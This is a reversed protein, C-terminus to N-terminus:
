AGAGQMLKAFAMAPVDLWGLVCPGGVLVIRLVPSGPPAVAYIADHNSPIGEVDRRKLEDMLTKAQEPSLKVIRAGAKKGIAGDNWEMGDECLAPAQAVAAPKEGCGALFMAFCLVLIPGLLIALARQRAPFGRDVPM